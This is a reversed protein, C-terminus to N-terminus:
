SMSSRNMLAGAFCKSSCSRDAYACGALSRSRRIPMLRDADRVDRGLGSISWVVHGRVDDDRNSRWAWEGTHDADEAEERHDRPDAPAEPRRQSADGAPARPPRRPHAAALTAVPVAYGEQQETCQCPSPSRDPVGPTAPTPRRRQRRPQERAQKAAAVRERMDLEGGDEDSWASVASGLGDPGRQRM